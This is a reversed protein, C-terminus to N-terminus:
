AHQAGQGMLDGINGSFGISGDPRGVALINDKDRLHIGAAGVIGAIFVAILEMGIGLDFGHNKLM